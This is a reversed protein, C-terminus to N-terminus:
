GKLRELVRRAAEWQGRAHAWTGRPVHGAMVGDAENALAVCEARAAALIRLLMMNETRLLNIEAQLHSNEALLSACNSCYSM